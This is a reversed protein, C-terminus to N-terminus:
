GRGCAPRHRPPGRSGRCRTQHPRDSFHGDATECFGGDLGGEVMRPYDVQSGDAQYSHRDTIKWGPNSFLAPTDLHTDLNIAQAQVARARPSITTPGNGASACTAFVLLTAMALIPAPKM